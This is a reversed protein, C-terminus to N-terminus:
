HKFSDSIQEQKSVLARQRTLSNLTEDREGDSCITVATKYWGIMHNPENLQAAQADSAVANNVHFYVPKIVCVCICVTQLPQVASM